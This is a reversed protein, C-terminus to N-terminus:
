LGQLALGVALLGTGAACDLVRAGPALDVVVEALAAASSKPTLLSDPVLWDYVAALPDYRL